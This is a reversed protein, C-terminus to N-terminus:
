PIVGFAESSDDAGMSISVPALGSIFGQTGCECRQVEVHDMNGEPSSAPIFVTGIHVEGVVTQIKESKLIMYVGVDKEGSVTIKSGQHHVEPFRALHGV